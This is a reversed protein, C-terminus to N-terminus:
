SARLDDYEPHRRLYARVYSCEPVVRFGNVRAYELADHALRAAVGHGQLAAEVETHVLVITRPDKMRYELVGTGEPTELRFEGAEDDRVVRNQARSGAAAIRVGAIPTWAPPDSAPFSERSTEDTKDLPDPM